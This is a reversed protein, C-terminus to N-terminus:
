YFPCPIQVTLANTKTKTKKKKKKPSSVFEAPRHEFEFRELLPGPTVVTKDKGGMGGPLYNTM